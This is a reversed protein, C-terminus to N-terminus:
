EIAQNLAAPDDSHIAQRLLTVASRAQQDPDPSHDALGALYQRLPEPVAQPNVGAIPTFFEIAAQLTNQDEGEPLALYRYWFLWAVVQLAAFAGDAGDADTSQRLVAYAEALAQRDLVPGPDGQEFAHIRAILRDPVSM